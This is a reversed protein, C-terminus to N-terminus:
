PASNVNLGFGRPILVVLPCLCSDVIVSLFLLSLSLFIHKVLCCFFVVWAADM